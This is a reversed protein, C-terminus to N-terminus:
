GCGGQAGYCMFLALLAGAIVFVIIATDCGAFFGRTIIHGCHPCTKASTSTNGGCGPCKTIPM